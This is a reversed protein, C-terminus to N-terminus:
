QVKMFIKCENSVVRFRDEYEALLFENSGLFLYGGFKLSDYLLKFVHKQLQMDFYILVNRCVIFDFENFSGASQLDHVFFLIKEQLAADISVFSDYLTFYEELSGEVDLKAFNAKAKEYEQMGYLGNKAEEIVIPNFDTAYITSKQLLDMSDLLIAISYAEQGQSVGACWIKNHYNHRFKVFFEMVKKMCVTDRFFESVNISVKLFFLKFAFRNFLLLLVLEQMTELAYKMMFLKIRRNIMDKAYGRYDYEYKQYIKELLYVIWADREKHMKLIQLFEQMELLDLVYNYHRSEIAYKPISDADGCSTPKQVLVTSGNNQISQLVDVGDYAYGCEVIAIMKEKYYSSLSSFTVSISPKAGNVAEGKDLRLYGDEISLHFDKPAIFIRNKVLRDGDKAYAVKTQTVESLLRELLEQMTHGIHQVVVISFATTDIGEILELIHHTSQASGGIVLVDADKCPVKLQRAVMFHMVDFGLKHLYRVVRGNTACLHIHHQKQAEKLLKVLSAPITYLSAITVDYSAYNKAFLQELLQNDEQTYTRNITIM